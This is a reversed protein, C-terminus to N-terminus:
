IINRVQPIPIHLTFFIELGFPYTWWTGEYSHGGSRVRIELSIKRCCAVSKQLQELSEPLVIALPKPTAPEAFRLNQISFNLIKYYNYASFQDHEKYPFVTFNKINHNDLCFAFNGLSSLLCLSVDFPLFLFCLLCLLRKFFHFM